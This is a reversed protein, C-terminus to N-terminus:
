QRAGSEESTADLMPVDEIRRAVHLAIYLMWGILGVHLVDNESFWIGERWLADTAGSILYVFYAGMTVGLWLWTVILAKDMSHRYRLYRRSNLVFLLLINPATFVLLMEFSILFRNLTIVGFVVVAVYTALNAGAYSVFTQRRKGRLGANAGAVVMADISAVSLLLYVIEWWSTWSCLQRGACKIEYSFAQYSTGASLAGLGWLLLAIGWWRRSRHGRQNRLIHIGAIIATFGLLM